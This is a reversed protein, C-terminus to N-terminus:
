FLSKEIYFLQFMFWDYEITILLKGGHLLHSNEKLIWSVVMQGTVKWPCVAPNLNPDLLTRHGMMGTLCLPIGGPICIWKQAM